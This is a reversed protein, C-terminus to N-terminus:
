SLKQEQHDHMLCMHDAGAGQSSAKTMDEGKFGKVRLLLANRPPLWTSADLMLTSSLAGAQGM